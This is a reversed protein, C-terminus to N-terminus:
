FTGALLSSAGSGGKGKVYSLIIPMFKQVMEPSLGLKDFVANVKAIGELSGAMSSLSSMGGGGLDIDGDKMMQSIGPVSKEISSFKTSGLEGKAMNFLAGAGGSAQKESVGLQSTLSSILDLSQANVSGISLFLALFSLKIINFLKM